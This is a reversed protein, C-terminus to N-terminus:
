KTTWTLTEGSVSLTVWSTTQTEWSASLSGSYTKLLENLQEQSLTQQQPSSTLTEVLVLIGTGVVSGFIAILAILAAIKTSKKNGM